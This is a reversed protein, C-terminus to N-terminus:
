KITITGEYVAGTPSTARITIPGSVVKMDWENKPWTTDDAPQYGAGELFEFKWGTPDFTLVDFGVPVVEVSTGKVAVPPDILPRDLGGANYFALAGVSESGGGCGSVILAAVAALSVVAVLLM